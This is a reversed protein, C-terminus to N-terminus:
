MGPKICMTWDTVLPLSSHLRDFVYQPLAGAVPLPQLKAARVSCDRETSKVFALRLCKAMRSTEMEFMM